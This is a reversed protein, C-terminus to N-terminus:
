FHHRFLQNKQANADFGILIITSRAIRFFLLLRELCQLVHVRMTPAYIITDQKEYVTTNWEAGDQGQCYARASM